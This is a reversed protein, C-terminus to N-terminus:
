ICDFGSSYMCVLRKGDSVSMADSSIWIRKGWLVILVTEWKANPM